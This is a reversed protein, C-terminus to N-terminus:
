ILTGSYMGEIRIRYSGPLTTIPISIIGTWNTHIGSNQIAVNEDADDFDYDQNWDIWIGYKM